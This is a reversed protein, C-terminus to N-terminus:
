GGWFVEECLIQIQYVSSCVVKVIHWLHMPARSLMISRKAASTQCPRIERKKVACNFCM